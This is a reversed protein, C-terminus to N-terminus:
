IHWRKGWCVIADLDSNSEEAALVVKLLTSDNAYSVFLCHHVQLPLQRVYLNFLMPSWVAGQPMGAQIPYHSSEKANVVVHLYRNSLHSQFLVFAKSHVGICDLHQLLSSWWIHDFAGKIGLSVVRCEQRSELTQTAFLAIATGCDQAGCGKLFGYQSQPVFPMIYWM